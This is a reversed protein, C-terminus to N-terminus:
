YYYYKITVQLEGTTSYHNEIKPVSFSNYIYSNTTTYSAGSAFTSSVSLINHQRLHFGFTNQSISSYPTLKDDYFFTSNSQKVLTNVRPDFIWEEESVINGVADYNRNVAIEWRNTSTYFTSDTVIRGDTNYTYDLRGSDIVEQQAVLGQANYTYRSLPKLVGGDKRRIEALKDDSNYIYYEVAVELPLASPDSIYMASDVIKDIRDSSGLYYITTWQLMNGNYTSSGLLKNGEQNRSEPNPRIPSDVISSNGPKTCSIFILPSFAIILFFSRRM